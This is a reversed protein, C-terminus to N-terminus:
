TLGVGAISGTSSGDGCASDGGTKDGATPLVGESLTLTQFIGYAANVNHNKADVPDHEHANKAIAYATPRLLQPLMVMIKNVNLKIAVTKKTATIFLVHRFSVELSDGISAPSLRRRM